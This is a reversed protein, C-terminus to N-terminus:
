GKWLNASTGSDECPPEWEIYGWYFHQGDSCLKRVQMMKQGHRSIRGEEGVIDVRRDCVPCNVSSRM